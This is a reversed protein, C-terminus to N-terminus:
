EMKPGCMQSRGAAHEGRLNCHIEILAFPAVVFAPWFVDREEEAERYEKQGAQVARGAGSAAARLARAPRRLRQEPLHRPQARLAVAHHRRLRRGVEGDVLKDDAEVGEQLGEVGVLDQVGTRIRATRRPARGRRRATPLPARPPARSRSPPGREAAQAGRVRRAPCTCMKPADNPPKRACCYQMWLCARARLRVCVRWVCM